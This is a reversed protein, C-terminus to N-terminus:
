DEVEVLEIQDIWIQERNELTLVHLGNTLPLELPSEQWKWSRSRGMQWIGTNHNDVRIFASNNNGSPTVLRARLRYRGAQRIHFRYSVAGNSVHAGRTDPLRTQVDVAGSTHGAEAEIVVNTEFIPTDDLDSELAGVDTEKLHIDKTHVLARDKILHERMTKEGVIYYHRSGGDGVGEDGGILSSGEDESRTKPAGLERLTPTIDLLTARRPSVKLDAADDVLSPKVLLLARHSRYRQPLLKGDQMVFKDGHDGHVIILADNFRSLRKLEGVLDLLLKEACQSQTIVTADDITQCDANFLYPSHPVMLHIFTYRGSESLTKEEALFREFSLLSEQPASNPLFVGTEFQNIILPTIFIEREALFARLSLPAYRYIWASLFAGTNDLREGGVNDSHQNIKDFLKLAIPYLKRTYATTSYGARKLAHLFSGEGNFARDQYESQQVSFDYKSGLFVSPVAWTTHSYVATAEPFYLFGGLKKRLNDTLISSFVDSQYADFIIHYINPLPKGASSLTSARPSTLNQNDEWNVGSFFRYAEFTLFLIGLLAFFIAANQPRFYYAAVIVLGASVSLLFLLGFPHLAISPSIEGVLSFMVFLPGALYYGWLLVRGLRSSSYLWLVVGVLLTGAFFGLFPWFVHLKHGLDDQNKLYLPVSTSIFLLLPTAVLSSVVVISKKLDKKILM